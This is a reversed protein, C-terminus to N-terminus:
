KRHHKSHPKPEETPAVFGSMFEPPPEVPAKTEVKAAPSSKKFEVYAARFRVKDADSAERFVVDSVINDGQPLTIRVFEVPADKGAPTFLEFEAKM